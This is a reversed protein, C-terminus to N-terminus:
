SARRFIPENWGWTSRRSRRMGSSSQESTHRRTLAAGSVRVVFITATVARSSSSALAVARAQPASTKPLLTAPSSASPRATSASSSTCTTTRTGVESGQTVPRDCCAVRSILADPRRPAGFPLRGRAPRRHTGHRTAAAPSTVSHTCPSGRLRPNQDAVVLRRVDPEALPQPGIGPVPVDLARGVGPLDWRAEPGEVRVEGQRVQHPRGEVADGPHLPQRDGPVDIQGHEHQGGIHRRFRLLARERGARLVKEGLGKVTQFDEEADLIQEVGTTEVELELAVVLRELLEDAFPGLLEKLALLEGRHAGEQRTDRVLQVIGQGDDHTLRVEEAFHGVVVGEALPGLLDAGRGLAAPADDLVEQGEGALTWGLPSVHREVPHDLLSRFLTTYPFLTSRPPRRIM